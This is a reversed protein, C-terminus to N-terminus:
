QLRAINEEIIKIRSEADSQKKREAAVVDAPANNVFKENSLKKAVSVLFGKEYELERKLKELEEAVNIKDGVPVYYENTRVIFSSTNEIGGDVKQITSLNALKCLISSFSLDMEGKVFLELTEKPSIDKSQRLARINIIIEKIQEFTDVIKEDYNEPQPQLALMITKEQVSNNENLITWIEETIFPAFPHLIKLLKEFITLTATQTKTDIPEGYAPKIIELYYACFDDWFLKYVAMLAESIRYKDFNDCIEKLTKNLQSEFWEIAKLAYDPQAIPQV